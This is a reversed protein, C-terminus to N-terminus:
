DKTPTTQNFHGGCAVSVRALNTGVSVAKRVTNFLLIPNLSLMQLMLLFIGPILESALASTKLWVWAEFLRWRWGSCLLM